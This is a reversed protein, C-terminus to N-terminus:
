RRRSIEVHRVFVVARAVAIQQRQQSYAGLKAPKAARKSGNGNEENNNICQVEIRAMNMGANQIGASM